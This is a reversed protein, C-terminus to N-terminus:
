HATSTKCSLRPSRMITALDAPAIRDMGRRYDQSGVLLDPPILLDLTYDTDLKGLGTQDHKTDIRVVLGVTCTDPQGLCVLRAYLWWRCYGIVTLIATLTAAGPDAFLLAVTAVAGSWFALCGLYLGTYREPQICRTYHNYTQRDPM